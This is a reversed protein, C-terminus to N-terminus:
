KSAEARRKLSEAETTVFRRVKRGYILAVAPALVGSFEALLHVRSGEPTPTVVHDAAFGLGAQKSAWLFRRGEEISKVVLVAPRLGPQQVQVRVGTRLPLPDLAKVTTMTPTWDPWREVDALVRWVVDPPAAIDVTHEYRM